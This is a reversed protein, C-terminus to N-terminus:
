KARQPLPPGHEDEVEVKPPPREKKKEAFDGRRRTEANLKNKEEREADETGESPRTKM